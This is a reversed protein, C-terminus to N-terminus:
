TKMRIQGPFKRIKNKILKNGGGKKKVLINNLRWTNTNKRNKKRQDIELKMSNHDSFINSINGIRKCKKLNKKTPKQKNTQKNPRDQSKDQLM